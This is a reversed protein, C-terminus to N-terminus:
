HGRIRAGIQDKEPRAPPQRRLHHPPHVHGELGDDPRAVVVVQRDPGRRGDDKVSQTGGPLPNRKRRWGPVALVAMFMTSFISCSCCRVSTGSTWGPSVTLTCTLTTSPSFSRMWTKSPTTM